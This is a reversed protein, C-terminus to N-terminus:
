KGAEVLSAEGKDFWVEGWAGDVSLRVQLANHEGSIPVEVEVKQWDNTGTVKRSSFFPGAKAPYRYVYVVAEGDFDLSRVYFSIRCTAPKDVAIPLMTSLTYGERPGQFLFRVSRKGELAVGSDLTPARGGIIGWSQPIGNATNVEEFSGNPLVVPGSLSVPGAVIM